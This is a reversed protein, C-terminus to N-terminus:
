ILGLSFLMEAHSLCENQEASHLLFTQAIAEGCVCVGMHKWSTAAQQKSCM